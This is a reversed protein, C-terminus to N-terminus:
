LSSQSAHPGGNTSQGPLAIGFKRHCRIGPTSEDYLWNALERSYKAGLRLRYSIFTKGNLHPHGVDIKPDWGLKTWVGKLDDIFNESVSTYSASLYKGSRTWCGDSDMLGRVFHPLVRYPINPPVRMTYTKSGGNLGYKKLSGVLRKSCWLSKWVNWKVSRFGQQKPVSSHGLCVSAASCVQETGLLSVQYTHGEVADVHGDGFILGLVWASAPTLAQFFDEDLTTKRLHTSVQAAQKHNRMPTGSTKLYAWVLAKHRGLKKGIDPPSVGRLYMEQM